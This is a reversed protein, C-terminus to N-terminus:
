GATAADVPQAADVPGGDTGGDQPTALDGTAADGSPASRCGGDVLCDDLSKLSTCGAALGVALACACGIAANRLGAILVAGGSWAGRQGTGAVAEM